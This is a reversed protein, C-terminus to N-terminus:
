PYESENVVLLGEREPYSNLPHFVADFPDPVAYADPPVYVAFEPTVKYAWHVANAGIKWAGVTVAVSVVKLQDLKEAFTDLLKAYLILLPLVQTLRPFPTVVM